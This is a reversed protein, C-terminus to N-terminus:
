EIKNIYRNKYHEAEKKSFCPCEAILEIVCRSMKYVLSRKDNLHEKLIKDLKGCTIGVYVCKRGGIMGTVKYVKCDMWKDRICNTVKWGKEKVKFLLEMDVGVHVYEWKRTRSLATYVMKKDMKDLDLIMYNENIDGGQYKYVMVCYAVSFYSSFVGCEVVM